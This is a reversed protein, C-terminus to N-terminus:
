SNISSMLENARRMLREATRVQNSRLLESSLGLYKDALKRRLTMNLPFDAPLDASYQQLKEYVADIQAANSSSALETEMQNFSHLYFVEAAQYPFSAALGETQQQKYFAMEEVASALQQGQAVLQSSHESSAFVANGIAILQQLAIADHKAVAQEFAKSYIEAELNDPKVQYSSDIRKLEALIKYPDNGEDDATYQQAMLLQNLQGRLVDIATQKSRAMSTGLTVLYHSDPYLATAENLLAEIKPYDPYTFSRDSIVADIQQEFHQILKDQQLRLLGNRLVPDITNSASLQQLFDSAQAQGLKQYVQHQQMLQQQESELAAIRQQQSAVFHSGGWLLMVTVAAATAPQWLSRHLSTMLQTLTIQRSAADFSLAKKLALWQLPNLHAPKSALKQQQQAKDAPLREFPHKSTLLEYALCAFSFIDDAVTPAVGKLLEPSAYAPTYGSLPATNNQQEAAYIDHNLQLQQSVGFDLVKVEGARNVMVNAPKLDAHVIGKSHAYKLADAIQDLLKLAAPLTLGKPKYRKIVQELSEGDLFEMVIFYHQQDTDVDFVRVINPHALQQTKHAEQLLLQLAEPQNVFQPQLVKIAVNNNGVGANDLFLDRARYVDSMGGSGIKSELLYRNNITVGEHLAPSAPQEAKAPINKAFRTKDASETAEGVPTSLDSQGHETM